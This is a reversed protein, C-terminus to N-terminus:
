GKGKESTALAVAVELTNSIDGIDHLLRDIHMPNPEKDLPFTTKEGNCYAIAVKCAKLLDEHAHCCRPCGHSGGPQLASTSRDLDLVVYKGTKTHILKEGHQAIETESLDTHQGDTTKYINM